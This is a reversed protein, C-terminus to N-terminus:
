PFSLNGFPGRTVPEGGSTLGYIQLWLQYTGAPFSTAPEWSVQEAHITSSDPASVAKLNYFTLSNSLSLGPNWLFQGAVLYPSSISIRDSSIKGLSVIPPGSVTFTSSYLKPGFPDQDIRIKYQGNPLYGPIGVDLTNQSRNVIVLPIYHSSPNDANDGLHVIAVRESWSPGVQELNSGNVRLTGGPAVTNTGLGTITRSSYQRLTLQNTPGSVRIGVEPQPTQSWDIVKWETASEYAPFNVFGQSDTEAGGSYEVGYGSYWGQPSPDGREFIGYGLWRYPVPVGGSTVYQVRIVRNSDLERISYNARLSRDTDNWVNWQGLIRSRVAQGGDYSFGFQLGSGPFDSAPHNTMRRTVPIRYVGNQSPISMGIANPLNFVENTTSWRYVNNIWDTRSLSANVGGPLQTTFTAASSNSNFFGEILERRCVQRIQALTNTDNGRLADPRGSKVLERVGWLVGRDEYLEATVWLNPTLARALLDGSLATGDQGRVPTVELFDDLPYCVVDGLNVSGPGRSPLPIPLFVHSPTREIPGYQTLTYNENAKVWASCLGGGRTKIEAVANGSSQGWRNVVVTMGEVPQGTLDIFRATLKLNGSDLTKAGVETSGSVPFDLSLDTSPPIVGFRSADDLNLYVKQTGTLSTFSFRGSAGIRFDSEVEGSKITVSFGKLSRGDSAALTGTVMSTVPTALVATVGNQNEARLDFSPARNSGYATLGLGSMWMASAKLTWIGPDLSFTFNGNEDTFALAEQNRGQRASLLVGRLPNGQADLARGSLSRLSAVKQARGDITLVQNTGLTFTSQGATPAEYNGASLVHYEVNYDGPDLPAAWTGNTRTFVVYQLSSDLHQVMAVSGALPEGLSNTLKGGIRQPKGPLDLTLPTQVPRFAGSQTPDSVRVVFKGVLEGWFAQRGEALEALVQTDSVGDLDWPRNPNRVSSSGVKFDGGNPVDYCLVLPEGADVRGNENSDGYIGLRVAKGRPLGSVTARISANPGPAASPVLTLSPAGPDAVTLLITRSSTFPGAGGRFLSGTVVLSYAGADGLGPSGSLVGSSSNFNMWSPLGTVSWVVGSTDAALAQQFNGDVTTTLTEPTLIVFAGAIQMRVTKADTGGAGIARILVDFNGSATPTGSIIGSQPDLNLGPPLGSAQYTFGKWPILAFNDFGVEGQSM